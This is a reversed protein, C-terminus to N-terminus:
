GSLGTEDDKWKRKVKGDKGNRENQKETEDDKWKRKMKRGNENWGDVIEMNSTNM